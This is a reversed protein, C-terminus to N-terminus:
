GPSAPSAGGAPLSVEEPESAEPGGGAPAAVGGVTEQRERLLTAAAIILLPIVPVKFRTDGFFALPVLATMLASGVLFLDEPRRRVVLGATGALGTALVLWYAVDATYALRAETSRDLFPDLRYSQVAIVGDHDGDRVWMFWFRRWLLWPERGPDDLIAEIARSTKEQDAGVEAPPGDLFRHDTACWENASFAGTADPAHGICLNDGTNTSLLVFADMRIVNRITWHVICLAVGAVLLGGARLVRRRDRIACWWVGVVVPLVALSIPRVIVDIGLVVGAALVRRNTLDDPWSRGLAVLMFLLFLTIYLTEGLVAGSHFILNPYLALGVAAAIGSRPGAIRRAVLAGVVVTVAGLAAQVMAVLLPLDDTFPTGVWTVIGLFWPYGPPYYATPFGSWPEIFGHGDAIARGYGLYRVPDVLGQPPRAVWQGWAVRLALGVLAAIAVAPRFAREAGGAPETRTM